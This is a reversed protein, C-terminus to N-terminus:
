PAPLFVRTELGGPLPAFRVFGGLERVIRGAGKMSAPDGKLVLEQEETSPGGQQALALMLFDRRTEGQKTRVLVPKRECRVSVAGRPPSAAAIGEFFGTLARQLEAPPCQPPPTGASIQVHVTLGRSDLLPRLRSAAELVLVELGARAAPAAAAARAAPVPPAQSSQPAAPRTVPPTPRPGPPPAAVPGPGPPPPSSPTGAPAQAAQGLGHIMRRLRLAEQQISNVAATRKGRADDRYILLLEAHSLIAALGLNMERVLGSLADALEVNSRIARHLLEESVLGTEPTSPAPTAHPAATPQSVVLRPPPSARPGQAGTQAVIAGFAEAVISPVASPDLGKEKLNYRVAISSLMEQIV